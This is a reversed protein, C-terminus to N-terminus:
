LSLNCLKRLFDAPVSIVVQPFCFLVVVLWVALQRSCALAAKVCVICRLSEIHLVDYLQSICAHTCRKELFVLRYLWRCSSTVHPHGFVSVVYLFFTVFNLCQIHLLLLIHRVQMAAFEDGHQLYKKFKSSASGMRKQAM